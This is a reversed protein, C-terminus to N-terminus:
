AIAIAPNPCRCSGLHASPHFRVGHIKRTVDRGTSPEVVSDVRFTSPALLVSTHGFGKLPLLRLYVVSAREFSPVLAFSADTRVEDLTTHELLEAIPFRRNDLMSVSKLAGLGPGSSSSNVLDSLDYTNGARTLFPVVFPLPLIPVRIYSIFRTFFSMNTPPHDGM